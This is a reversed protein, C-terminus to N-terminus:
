RSPQATSAPAPFFEGVPGAFRVPSEFGDASRASVGFVFDDIITNALVHETAPAAAEGAKRWTAETTPRKWITYSAAGPTAAWKLTTNASVAGSAIVDSPTPPAAALGALSILNLRTVRALYSWDVGETVDGYRIGNEVRVNQHQRTYNETAETVRVAPFGAEQIPIQDGGRGFRDRRYILMVDLDPLHADAMADLYRAVNRSPSDIEGGTAVRAAAMEPTEAVRVGESFVRVLNDTVSGDQGESNGIIDNNLVAQVRWGQERAHRALVRGGYLGQEEGTLVAYVITSAFKRKSLVRAAEMVAAVGSADDNAGPADSVGDMADSARSDIHASIIVVRGPDSVGRQVAVVTEILTPGPLRNGEMVQSPRSVSLCGGCSQSIGAFESETWRVAAGIGRTDSTRDSLTHRTGFGALRTVTRELNDASVEAAIARLERDAASRVPPTAVSACGALTLLALLAGTGSTRM